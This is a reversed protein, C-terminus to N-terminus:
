YSHYFNYIGTDTSVPYHSWHYFTTMGAPTCFTSRFMQLSEPSFVQETTETMYLWCQDSWTAMQEEKLIQVSLPFQLLHQCSFNHLKHVKTEPLKKRSKGNEEILPCLLIISGIGQGYVPDKKDAWVSFKLPCCSESAMVHMQGM